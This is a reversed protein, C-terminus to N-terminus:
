RAHPWRPLARGRRDHLALGFRNWILRQAVLTISGAIVMGALNVGLQIASAGVEGWASLALAVAINGAAPVTTVSIFVGVLASSKEATISLIGAVGALLAVIFSWRDPQVIFSTLPRDELMSADIWGWWRSVLACVTTIAMAVAFGVALTATAEGIRRVQGRVLGFCISAIAGFEPGLVMAGVILIPQDLLAGIGALQTALALFVVFAWSLRADTATRAALDDWVVADEGFGPVAKEAADAADSITLDLHQVSISGQRGLDLGRLERLTTDAGERVLDFEVVDGDPGRASGPLVVVGYAAASRQALLAVEDTRGPPTIVRVRLM